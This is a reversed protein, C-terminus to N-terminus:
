ARGYCFIHTQTETIKEEEPFVGRILPFPFKAFVVACLDVPSASLGQRVLDSDFGLLLIEVQVIAIFETEICGNSVVM